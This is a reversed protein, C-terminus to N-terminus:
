VRFGSLLKLKSSDEGEGLGRVLSKEKSTGYM